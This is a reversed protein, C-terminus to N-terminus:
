CNFTAIASGLADVAEATESTVNLIPDTIQNISWLVAGNSTSTMLGRFVRDSVCKNVNFSM